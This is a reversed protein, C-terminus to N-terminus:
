GNGTVKAITIGPTEDTINRNVWQCEDPSSENSRKIKASTGIAEYFPPRIDYCLWCEQTLNPFTRNLVEFSAQMIKWLASYTHVF